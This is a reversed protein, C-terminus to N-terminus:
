YQPERDIAYLIGLIDSDTLAIERGALVQLASSVQDPALRMMMGRLFATEVDLDGARLRAEGTVFPLEMAQVVRDVLVEDHYQLLDDRHICSEILKVAWRDPNSDPHSEDPKSGASKGCDPIRNEGVGPLPLDENDSRLKRMRWDQPIVVIEYPRGCGIRRKTILGKDALQKIVKTAKDHGCHLRDMVETQSYIITIDGKENTYRSRNKTSLSSRDMLFGYLLKSEPMMDCYTDDWFLAKPIRIHPYKAHMWNPDHEM